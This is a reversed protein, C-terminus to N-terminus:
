QWLSTSWNGSAWTPTTLPSPWASASWGTGTWTASSWTLSTWTKGSWTNGTWTKGTWTKGSWTKGAVSTTDAAFGAGTWDNGNFVGGNWAARSATAAATADDNWVAGLVDVEGKLLVGNMSLDHGHRTTEISGNGKGSDFTQVASSSRMSAAAFNVEGKGQMALTQGLLPTATTRLLDKVQDPTLGSRQQLLLAVGGSVVATAQSTGSGRIYGDGVLAKPYTAYLNSGPVAPAVIGVGPAVLDVNRVGNGRGNAHGSFSPVTDDSFSLTGKTDAAGVALIWPNYAPNALTTQTVGDNGAAAVVVIGAHWAVEAAWSLPDVSWPQNSTTGYSLNLVRVNLGDTQAHQVVWDIAAIVQSVDVLGNHDALKLSLIRADPAMGYFDNAADVAYGFGTGAPTERGAIIGAM